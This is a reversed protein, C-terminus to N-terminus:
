PAVDEPLQVVVVPAAGHDAQVFGADPDWWALRVDARETAAEATFPGVGRDLLWRGATTRAASPTTDHGPLLLGHGPVLFPKM